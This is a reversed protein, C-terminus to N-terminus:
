QLFYSLIDLYLVKMGKKKRKVPSAVKKIEDEDEDTGSTSDKSADDGDFNELLWERELAILESM